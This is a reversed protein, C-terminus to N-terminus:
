KNKKLYVNMDLAACAGQWVAKSIQYIPGTCDGCAYLGPMTARMNEDVQIDNGDLIAGAKRALEAAGASGEAIFLGSVAISEGDDFVIREVRGDGEIARLKRTDVSYGCGEPANAGNTLLTLNSVLPALVSAEHLAYEGSGLVAVAKGRFAFADCVACWSVGRGVYDLIGDIKPTKRSTGTALIVADAKYSGSSAEVDYGLEANMQVSFVEGDEFVVGLRKAGEIGRRELEPGSIAEEFGYYNEVSETRGLAGSGRSIVRTNHGARVAYLAASVGAPGSGVIIVDSM